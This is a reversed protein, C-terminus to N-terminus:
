RQACRLRGPLIVLNGHSISIVPSDGTVSMELITRSEPFRFRARTRRGDEDRGGRSRDPM